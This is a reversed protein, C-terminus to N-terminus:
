RELGTLQINFETACLAVLQEMFEAMEKVSLDRTRRTRVITTERPGELSEQGLILKKLYEKWAEPTYLSGHTLYYQRSIYNFWVHLLKNQEKSRDRHYKKIIVSLTGTIPTDTLYNYVAEAGSKATVIFEM